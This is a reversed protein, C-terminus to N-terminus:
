PLLRDLEHKIYTLDEKELENLLAMVAYLVNKSRREGSGGGGGSIAVNRMEMPPAVPRSPAARPSEEPTALFAGLQPSRMAAEREQPTIEMNDLKQLNPLVRAVLQRYCQHDACPNDCLWLVKLEKLGLLYNIESVEAVDNKRLYLEQLKHCNRFDKLTSIKNVSLSLVEVHPMQLLISVDTLDQGWLNLNRVEELKDLRTKAKILQETLAVM